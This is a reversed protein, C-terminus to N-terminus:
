DETNEHAKDDVQEFLINKHIQMSFFACVAIAAYGATFIIERGPTSSQGSLVYILGGVVGAAASIFAVISTTKIRGVTKDFEPVTLKDKTKGFTITSVLMFFIPLVLVAYPLIVYFIRSGSNNVLGMGIFLTAMALSTGKLAAKYRNLKEAPVKALFYNGRYVVMKRVGKQTKVTQLEFQDAYKRNM